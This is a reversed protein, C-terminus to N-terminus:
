GDFMIAIGVLLMACIGNTMLAKNASVYQMAAAGIFRGVMAGGWYYAIYKAADAETIGAISPESLFNVLFSGIAVEAGM